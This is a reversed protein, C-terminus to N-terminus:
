GYCLYKQGKGSPGLIFFHIIDVGFIFIIQVETNNNLPQEFSNKAFSALVIKGLQKHEQLIQERRQKKKMRPSPTPQFSPPPQLNDAQKDKHEHKILDTAGAEEERERYKSPRGVCLKNQDEKLNTKNSSIPIDNKNQHQLPSTQRHQPPSSSPTSSSRFLM